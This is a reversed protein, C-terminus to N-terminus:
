RGSRQLQHQAVKYDPLTIVKGNVVAAPEGREIALEFAQCVDTARAVEAPSPTMLENIVDVHAPTVAICCTYGARAWGGVFKRVKALDRYEPILSGGSAFLGYAAAAVAIKSRAYHNAPGYLDDGSEDFPQSGITAAYDVYGFHLGIVQQASAIQDLEIVARATEVMVHLETRPGLLSQVERIEDASDVKPYSVLYDGELDALAALDDRGWPSNINNVRVIALRGGLHDPNVLTDLVRARALEKSTPPASDELDIMIADAASGPVKAWYRDNLIPVELVSRLGAYRERGTSM